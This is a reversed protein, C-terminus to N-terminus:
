EPWRERDYLADEAPMSELLAQLATILRGVYREGQLFSGPDLLVVGFHHMEQLARESALLRFDAIDYTVIARRERLALEFLGADDVGVLTSRETVAVVDHGRM